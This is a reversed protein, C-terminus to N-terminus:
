KKFSYVLPTHKGDKGMGPSEQSFFFYHGLYIYVMEVIEKCLSSMEIDTGHTLHEM